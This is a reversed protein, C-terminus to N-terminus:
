AALEYEGEHGSFTKNVSIVSSVTIKDMFDYSSDKFIEYWALKQGFFSLQAPLQINFSTLQINWTKTLAATGHVPVTINSLTFPQLSNVPMIDTKLLLSIDETDKYEESPLECSESEEAYPVSFYDFSGAEIEGVDLAKTELLFQAIDGDKHNELEKEFASKSLSCLDESVSKIAKYLEENSM